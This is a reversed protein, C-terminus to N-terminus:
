MAKGTPAHIYTYMNTDFLGKAAESEILPYACQFKEAFAMEVIFPLTLLYLTM